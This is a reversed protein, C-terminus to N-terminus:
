KKKKLSKKSILIIRPLYYELFFVFQEADNKTEFCLNPILTLKNSLKEKININVSYHTPYFRYPNESSGISWKHKEIKYKRM